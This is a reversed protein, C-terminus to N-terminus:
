HLSFSRLRPSPAPDSATNCTGECQADHGARVEYNDVVGMRKLAMLRSYPNTDVVEASIKDIKSRAPAQM